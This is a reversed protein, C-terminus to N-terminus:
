STFAAALAALRQDLAEDVRRKQAIKGVAYAITSPHTVGVAKAIESLSLRLLQRLLYAAEHRAKTAAAGGGGRAIVDRKLQHTM